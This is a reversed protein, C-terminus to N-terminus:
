RGDRWDRIGLYGFWIPWFTLNLVVIWPPATFWWTLTDIFWGLPNAWFEFVNM